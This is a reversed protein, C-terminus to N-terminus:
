PILITYNIEVGTCSTAKTYRVSNYIPRLNNITTEFGCAVYFRLERAFDLNLLAKVIGNFQGANYTSASTDTGIDAPQGIFLVGDFRMRANNEVPTGVDIRNIFFLAAAIENHTVGTNDTDYYEFGNYEAIYKFLDSPDAIEPLQFTNDKPKLISAM